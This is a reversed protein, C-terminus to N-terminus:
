HHESTRLCRGHGLRDSPAPEQAVRCLSRAPDRGTETGDLSAGTTRAHGDGCSGEGGGGGQDGRGGERGGGDEGRRGTLPHSGTWM